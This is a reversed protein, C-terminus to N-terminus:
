SRKKCKIAHKLSATIILKLTYVSITTMIIIKFDSKFIGIFISKDSSFNGLLIRLKLPLTENINEEM